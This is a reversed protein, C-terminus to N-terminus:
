FKLTGVFSAAMFAVTTDVLLWAEGPYAFFIVWPLLYVVFLAALSGLLLLFSNRLETYAVRAILDRIEGPETFNAIQNRADGVGFEAIREEQQEAGQCSQEDDVQEGPHDKKGVGPFRPQQYVCGDSEHRSRKHPRQFKVPKGPDPRERKGGRREEIGVRGKNRGHTVPKAPAALPFAACLRRVFM